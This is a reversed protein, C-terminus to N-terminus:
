SDKKVAFLNLVIFLISLSKNSYVRLNNSKEWLRFKHVPKYLSNLAHYDTPRHALHTMLNPYTPAPPFLILGSTRSTVLRYNCPLLFPQTAPASIAIKPALRQWRNISCKYLLTRLHKCGYCTQCVFGAFVHLM